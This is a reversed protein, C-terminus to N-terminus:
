FNSMCPSMYSVIEASMAMPSSAHWTSRYFATLNIKLINQIIKMHNPWINVLIPHVPDQGVVIVGKFLESVKKREKRMDILTHKISDKRADNVGRAKSAFYHGVAPIDLHTDCPRDFLFWGM